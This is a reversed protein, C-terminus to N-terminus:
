EGVKVKISRKGEQNELTLVYFSTGLESVSIYNIWNQLVGENVIQGVTNQLTYRTGPITEIHLIDSVPNPYVKTTLTEMQSVDATQDTRLISDALLVDPIGYGYANDASDYRNCSKFIANRIEANSRNPHAEMLCAVLGAILPGSFTTGSGTRLIGDPRPITTLGGMAAVEPKLRGDASPGRSSFPTIVGFSDVAGVCLVDKGDCPATIHFWATNGANGASNTIFIGRESARQAALTIITSQGDMDQYSYDGEEPDFISYGLSSHIISVGLSDAWEMARVWNLEEIHKESRTDETRALIFQADPAAGIMSDQHKIGAVALVQMGHASTRYTMTDDEVFDWAAEIQNEDWMSQFIDLTDVGNFGGDFVALRVGLGTNGMAHYEDLSLMEIQVDSRGYSFTTNIEKIESQETRYKGLPATHSIFSLEELETDIDETNVCAANLWKSTGVIEINLKKLQNVYKPYVSTNFYDETQHPKDTFYIWSYSQASCKYGTLACIILLSSKWFNNLRM